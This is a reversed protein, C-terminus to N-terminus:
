PALHTGNRTVRSIEGMEGPSLLHELNLMVILDQGAKGVLSIFKQSEGNTMPPPAEFQDAAMRVVQSAADVVLGVHQGEMDVVIVRTAPTAQSHELGLRERLDVIPVIDGRLNIIGKVCSPSQPLWTADRMRIIEKVNMLELGYQESGVTFSILQRMEAQATQEM